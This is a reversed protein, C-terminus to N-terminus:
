KRRRRAALGALALLSLTATAPEPISMVYTVKLGTKDATLYYTNVDTESVNEIGTWTATSNRETFGDLTFTGSWEAYNGIMLTRTIVAFSENTTITYNTSTEGALDSTSLAVAEISNSSALNSSICGHQNLYVTGNSMKSTNIRTYAANVDVWAGTTDSISLSINPSSWNIIGQAGTTSNSFQVNEALYLYTVTVKSESHNFKLGGKEDIYFGSFDYGKTGNIFYNSNLYSNAAAAASTSPFASHLAQASPTTFTVGHLTVESASAAVTLFFLPLIFLTKKMLFFIGSLLYRKRFSIVFNSNLMLQSYCMHM